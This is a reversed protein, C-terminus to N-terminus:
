TRWGFDLRRFDPSSVGSKVDFVSFPIATLWFITLGRSQRPSEGLNSRTLYYLAVEWFAGFKL